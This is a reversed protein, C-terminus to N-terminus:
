QPNSQLRIRHLTDHRLAFGEMVQEYMTPVDAICHTRDEVKWRDIVNFMSAVITAVRQQNQCLFTKGNCSLPHTAAHRRFDCRTTMKLLWISSFGWIQCNQSRKQCWRSEECSVACTYLRLLMCMIEFNLTSPTSTGIPSGAAWLNIPAEWLALFVLKQFSIKCVANQRCCISWIFVRFEATFWNYIGSISPFTVSM